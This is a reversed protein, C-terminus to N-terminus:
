FLNLSRMKVYKDIATRLAVVALRACHKNEKPLGDFYEDIKEPKVRYAEDLHMGMVTRTLYSCCSITFGCGDTWFKIDKISELEILLYIEVTDGCEGTVRSWSDSKEMKGMNQPNLFERRLNESYEELVIEQLKDQLDKWDGNM